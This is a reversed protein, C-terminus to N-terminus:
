LKLLYFVLMSMVILCLFMPSMFYYHQTCNEFLSLWLPKEYEYLIKDAIYFNNNSFYDLDSFHINRTMDSLKENLTRKQITNSLKEEGEDLIIEGLIMYKTPNDKHCNYSISSVQRLVVPCPHVNNSFLSLAVMVTIPDSVKSSNGVWFKQHPNDDNWDVWLHKKIFEFNKSQYSRSRNVRWSSEKLFSEIEPRFIIKNKDISDRHYWESNRELLYSPIVTYSCQPHEQVWKMVFEEAQPDLRVNTNISKDPRPLSMSMSIIKRIKNTQSLLYPLNSKAGISCYVCEQFKEIEALLNLFREEHCIDFDASFNNIYKQYFQASNTKRSLNQINIFDILNKSIVQGEKLYENRKWGNAMFHQPDMIETSCGQYIRLGLEFIYNKDNFLDESLCLIQEVLLSARLYPPLCRRNTKPPEASSLLIVNKLGTKRNSYKILFKILYTLALADDPDYGLDTDLIFLKSKTSQSWNKM